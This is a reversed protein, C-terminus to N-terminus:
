KEERRFLSRTMNIMWKWHLILHVLVLIGISLGCWDHILMILDIPVDRPSVRILRLFGPFKIIGTVFTIFTVMLLLVDVWYNLRSRTM